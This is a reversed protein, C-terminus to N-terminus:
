GRWPSPGSAPTRGGLRGAPHDGDGAARGGGPVRGRDRGPDADYLWWYCPRLKAKLREKHILTGRPDLRLDDATVRAPSCPRASSTTSAPRRRQRLMDCLHIEMLRIDLTTASYIVLDPRFALAKRRFSELRQLPSYAAVAFNLM